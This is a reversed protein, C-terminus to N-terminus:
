GNLSGGKILEKIDDGKGWGQVGLKKEGVVFKGKATDKLATVSFVNYDESFLYKVDLVIFGHEELKDRWWQEPKILVHPDFVGQETLNGPGFERDSHIHFFYCGNGVRYLEKFTDDILAEPIHELVDSSVVLDFRDAKFPIHHAPAVRCYQDINLRKWHETLNAIDCGWIKKNLMRFRALGYGIGCGVDLAEQFEPFLKTVLDWFFLSNKPHYDHEVYLTNYIDKMQFGLERKGMNYDVNLLM